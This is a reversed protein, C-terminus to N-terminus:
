ALLFRISFQLFSSSFCNFSFTHSLKSGAIMGYHQLIDMKCMPCTRKELLWQDICSKHFLHKCPLIRVVDSIRDTFKFPSIRSLLWGRLKSNWVGVCSVLFYVWIYSNAKISVTKLVFPVRTTSTKIKLTKKKWCALRSSRWRVSLRVRWSFYFVNSSYM